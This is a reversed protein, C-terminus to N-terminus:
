VYERGVMGGTATFQNAAVMFQESGAAAAAPKFAVAGIGWFDPTSFTWSMVGGATGPQTSSRYHNGGVDEAERLTQDAGITPGAPSSVYLDDVVLDDAGVSAVTVTAPSATGDATVATGVPTTQHVGTMSIVFLIHRLPETTELDSTVTQAGTAQGALYYGASQDNASAALGFDWLETMGSGGYTASTSGSAGGGTNWGVGAFVARDSGASTHSLSLVGDGSVEQAGTSTDFAVSNHVAILPPPSETTAALVIETNITGRVRELLVRAEVTTRGEGIRRASRLRRGDVVTFAGGPDFLPVRYALRYESVEGSQDVRIGGSVQGVARYEQGDVALILSVRCVGTAAWALPATTTPRRLRIELVDTQPDVPVFITEVRRTGADLTVLQRPALTAM